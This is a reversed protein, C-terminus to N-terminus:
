WCEKSLRHTNDRRGEEAKTTGFRAYDANHPAIPHAEFAMNGLM